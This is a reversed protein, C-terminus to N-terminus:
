SSPGRTGGRLYVALASLDDGGMGAAIAARVMRRNTAAQEMAAGAREALDLALDLDKGALDLSFAVPTEEPREFAARKYHVFPAAIASAALVEYAATREVGAKEALVLSESVALNLGHVVANVVLKMTAGAGLEGVHIVKAALADLVPRARELAAADGGVMVMLEGREVLMVSGSVPTDLLSAGREEVLPRLARVTRPDVTTSELVVTGPRLGAAVGRPGDYADKVTDDSLSTIVVGAGAAAEAASGAVRAGTAAAVAEAKAATRNFALVDFGNRRLTGVMAGGMRGTGVVAVTPAAM